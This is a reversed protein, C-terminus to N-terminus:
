RMQNLVNLLINKLICIVTQDASFEFELKIVDYINGIKGSIIINNYGNACLKYYSESETDFFCVQGNLSSYM